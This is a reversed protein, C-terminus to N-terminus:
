EQAKRQERSRRLGELKRSLQSWGQDESFSIEIPYRDHRKLADNLRALFQEENRVYYALEKINNGTRSFAHECIGAAMVEAELADQLSVMQKNVDGPPMRNNDDGDYAWAIVVLWPLEAMVQKAPLAERFSWIVPYGDERTKAIIYQPEPPATSM